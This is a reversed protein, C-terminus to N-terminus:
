GVHDMPAELQLNALDSARVLRRGWIGVSLLGAFILVATISEWGQM